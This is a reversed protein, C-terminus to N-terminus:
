PRPVTGDQPKLRGRNSLIVQNIKDDALAKYMDHRTQEGISASALAATRPALYLEGNTFGILDTNVTPITLQRWYELRVFRNASAGIFSIVEDRYMWYVLTTAAAVIPLPDSETMLVYGTQPDAPAKEWLRLPEQFDAPLTLTTANALVSIDNSIAKMVPAASFRLMTQLERHAQQLKPFLAADTWLSVADDNLLTRATALVVSSQVQPM